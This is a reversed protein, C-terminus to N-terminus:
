SDGARVAGTSRCSKRRSIQKRTRPRSARGCPESSAPVTLEFDPKAWLNVIWTPDRDDGGKSAALVIRENSIVPATLTTIRAKGTKRGITHPDVIPVGGFSNFLRGGSVSIITRYLMPAFKFGPDKLDDQRTM